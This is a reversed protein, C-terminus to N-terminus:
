KADGYSPGISAEAALPLGPAWGPTRAMEEVVVQKLEEAESAKPLYVLEDHVQLKFGYGTRKYIRLAAEFTACRALAQIINELLKAGYIKKTKGGYTFVWGDTERRLDDYFLRLGNPLVITQHDSWVPGISFTGDIAMSSIAADLRRWMAPIEHYTRRYIGVINQAEEDTLRIETGVQQSSQLLVTRQFNPWSVGYGLGLIGTKGIFREAPHTAKKVEYGFVTSAFISYVDDGNAFADVLAKCGCFWASMRAEIQAADAALVVRGPPAILARRLKSGRGLNQVNISWDGSLRHTHAGSYKMPMPMLPADKGRWTVRAINVFREARTEEITSKLGLRAAHLAQVAPNPHEELEMFGPDTRALAYTQKGTTPSVKMPPEVGLARLSLAFKDNSMLEEPGNIGARSMAQALLLKKQERVEHLHEHLLTQDLHFEPQVACRLVLDMLVLETPPFQGKVVIAKFIGSCLEADNCAYEKYAEYLGAAKVAALSMGKVKLVADGKVGLGLHRAVSALSLSKLKSGLTARALGLTDAMMKPVFGYVWSTIAMDFTANHSIMMVDSPDLKAFYGPLQDGDLWFPEADLGEQIAAGHCEFRPDNIYEVPTMKRLSYEDDYYTEYDITIMKM